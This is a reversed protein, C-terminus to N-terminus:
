DAPIDWGGQPAEIENPLPIQVGYNIIAWRRVRDYYVEAEETSMSSTRKIKPPALPNEGYERAHEALLVEHMEEPEYGFCESLIPIIVAWYYSNQRKSRQKREDRVSLYVRKGELKNLASAWQAPEDMQFQGGSVMGSFVSQIKM